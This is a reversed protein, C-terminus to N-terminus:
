REESISQEEGVARKKIRSWCVGCFYRFASGRDYMKRCAFEMAWQVDYFDLYDLFKGVSNLHSRPIADDGFREMYLEAIKWVERERRDKQGELINHYSRVQAEREAVRAAKEALSQPISTLPVAAKGRNCDFCATVLNDIEDEGGDAIPKIHDIELLVKESPHAGCYSCRFGDRKFVDFRRKKSISARTM